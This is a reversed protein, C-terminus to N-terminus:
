EVLGRGPVLSFQSGNGERALLCPLNSASHRGLISVQLDDTANQNALNGDLRRM